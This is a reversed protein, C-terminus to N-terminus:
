GPGSRYRPGVLDMLPYLDTFEYDALRHGSEHAHLGGARRLRVTKWGLQRPSLFDKAPNDGVYMCQDPTVGARQQVTVFARPHPKSYEHGWEGTLVTLPIWERLNLARIKGEQSAVPGDTILALRCTRHLQPICQLADGALSITPEHGRYVAVLECVLSAHSPLQLAKLALDFINGRKGQVFLRWAFAAFNDVAFRERVYEGVQQFGSQIYHRELYLTDDLDFVITTPLKM